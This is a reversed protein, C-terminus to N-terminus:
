KLWYYVTWVSTLFTLSALLILGTPLQLHTGMQHSAVVVILILSCLFLTILIMSLAIEKRGKKEKARNKEIKSLRGKHKRKAAGAGKQKKGTM